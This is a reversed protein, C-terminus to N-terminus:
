AMTDRLRNGLYLILAENDLDSRKAQFGPRKGSVGLAMERM